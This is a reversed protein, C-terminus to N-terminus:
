NISSIIIVQSYASLICFILKVCQGFKICLIFTSLFIKAYNQNLIYTLNGKQDRQKDHFKM